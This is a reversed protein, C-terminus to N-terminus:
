GAPNWHIFLPNLESFSRVKRTVVDGDRDAASGATTGPSTNAEVTPYHNDPLDTRASVLGMHDYKRDTRGTELCFIAGTKVRSPSTVVRDKQRAWDAYSQVLAQSPVQELPSPVNHIAGALEAAANVFAACWAYGENLGAARLCWGVMPGRNNGGVESNGVFLGAAYLGATMLPRERLFDGTNM